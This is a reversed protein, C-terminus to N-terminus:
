KNFSKSIQEWEELWGNFHNFGKYVKKHILEKNKFNKFYSLFVEEPMIDDDGGILHLQSITELQTNSFNAPNLSEYLPTIGHLKVWKNIDLNGAVTILQKIDKREVSLLTAVAGGGSYGILRFDQNNYTQKLRNLVEMYSQIVNKDFRASSWYRNECISSDIYQCPRSIYAKCTSTDKLMLKLALPNIPTPNSSLRTRSVWSLGDGEIYLNITKNECSFDLKSVGLLNFTSTNFTKKQLQNNKELLTNFTDKREQLSAISSCGNFFLLLIFTGLFWIKM